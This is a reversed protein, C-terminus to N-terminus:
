CVHKVFGIRFEYWINMNHHQFAELDSKVCMGLDLDKNRHIRLPNSINVEIIKCNAALVYVHKYSIKILRWCESLLESLVGLPNM